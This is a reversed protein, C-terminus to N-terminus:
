NGKKWMMVVKILIFQLFPISVFKIVAEVPYALLFLLLWGVSRIFSDDGMNKDFFYDSLGINLFTSCVAFSVLGSIMYLIFQIRIINSTEKSGRRKESKAIAVRSLSLDDDTEVPISKDNKSNRRNELYLLIATIICLIIINPVFLDMWLGEFLEEILELLFSPIIAIVLFGLAYGLCGPNRNSSVYNGIMASWFVNRM